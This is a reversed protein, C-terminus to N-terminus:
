NCVWAGNLRKAIAGTGGAACPNAITCDSCYSITGNTTVGTGLGSFTVPSLTLKGYVDVSMTSTANNQVLLSYGATRAGSSALTVDAGASGAALGSTITVRSSNYAGSLTGAYVTGGGGGVNIPASFQQQFSANMFIDAGSYGGYTNIKSGAPVVVGGAFTGTGSQSISYVTTTSYGGAVLNASSIDITNVSYSGVAEWPMTLVTYISSSIVQVPTGAGTGAAVNFVSSEIVVSSVATDIQLDPYTSTGATSRVGRISVQSGGAVLPGKGIYIMPRNAPNPQDWVMSDSIESTICSLVKIAGGGPTEFAVDRIHNAYGYSAYGNNTQELWIAYTGSTTSGGYSYAHEITIHETSASALNLAPVTNGAAYAFSFDHLNNVFFGMTTSSANIVSKAPNTQVMVVNRWESATVNSAATLNFVHGGTGLASVMTLGDVLVGSIAANSSATFLDSVSNTILSPGIGWVCGPNSCGTGAQGRGAGRLRLGSKIVIPASTKYTGAPFFVEGTSAAVAANIANTDDETHTTGDYLGVAGFDKVSVTDAFRDQLTRGTTSGTSTVHSDHVHDARSFYLSSGESASTGLLGTSTATLAQKTSLGTSGALIGGAALLILAALAIRTFPNM